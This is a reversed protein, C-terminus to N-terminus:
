FNKVRVPTTRDEMTGDGLQGGVNYGWCWARGNKALACTHFGGGALAVADIGPVSGPVNRDDQSGDGLQGYLNYGWCRVAGSSLLACTHLGGPAIAKVNRSLGQVPVPKTRDTTTGDGLQGHTNMGWCFAGGGETLACTHSYSSPSAIAVVNRLGKVAVPTLRNTKTGDGLEGHENVGWCKVSGSRMLACTHFSSAALAIVGSKLGKVAVPVFRNTNTGDGLQGAANHGWCKVGGAEMIACNHANGVALGVVGSRLTKVPKPTYHSSVTGDGLQGSNNIGWCKVAGGKILACTHASGGGVSRVGSKLGSTRVATARNTTTGDGLMGYGNGGWCKLGNAQTLACSHSLGAAIRTRRLNAAAELLVPQSRVEEGKPSSGASGTSPGCCLALCVGLIHVRHLIRM